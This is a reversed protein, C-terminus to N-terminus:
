QVILKKILTGQASTLKYMYIGKPVKHGAQNTVRWVKRHYGQKKFENVLTNVLQGSSNYITLSVQGDAPVRYSITTEENVVPNPENQYLELKIEGRAAQQSAKSKGRVNRTIVRTTSNNVILTIDVTETGLLTAGQLIKAKVKGTYTGKALTAKTTFTMPHEHGSPLIYYGGAQFAQNTVTLWDPMKLEYQVESANLSKLTLGFSTSKGVAQTATHNQKHWSINNADVRFTWSRGQALNGFEDSITGEHITATLLAGEMLEMPYTDVPQIFVQTQDASTNVVLPIDQIVTEINLPAANAKGTVFSIGTASTGHTKATFDRIAEPALANDDLVYYAQLGAETGILRKNHNTRITEESLANNWIRVEDIGGNFSQGNNLKGITLPQNNVAFNGIGTSASKNLIGNLYISLSNVSTQKSYVVAVHTWVDTTLAQTSVVGNQGAYIKNGQTFGIQVNGGKEIIPTFVTNSHVKSPKVWFEVTYSDTLDLAPQDSVTIQDSAQDFWASKPQYEDGGLIGRLSINLPNVGDLNLRKNFTATAIVNPTISGNLPTVSTIVPRQRQINGAVWGTPNIMQWGELANGCLPVLRVRYAQNAGIAKTDLTYNYFGQADKNGLDAVRVDKSFQIDDSNELAFEMRVKSFTSHPTVAKFRFKLAEKSGSNVVWNKAPAAMDIQGVCPAHFKATLRKVDRLRVYESGDSNYIVAAKDVGKQYEYKPSGDPNNGVKVKEGAYKNLVSEDCGSYLTLPINVFETPATSGERKVYVKLTKSAGPELTYTRPIALNGLGEVRISAGSPLKSTPVVLKYTKAKGQNQGENNKNADRITVEFVADANLNAWGTSNTVALEVGERAITHQEVPCSSQGAKAVIVPTPFNPDQRFRVSFHDGADNDSLAITFSETSSTGGGSNRDIDHSTSLTIDLNFNASFATVDTKIYKTLDLSHSHSVEKSSSKDVGITRKWTSSASFAQDGLPLSNAGSKNSMTFATNNDGNIVAQRTALTQALVKNWAEIDQLHNKIADVIKRDDSSLTERNKQEGQKDNLQGRLISVKDRLKPIENHEIAYRTFVFEAGKSTSGTVEEQITTASCGSVSLTKGPAFYVIDSTGIFVDSQAGPLNVTGASTSISKDFTVSYSSTYKGGINNTTGIQGGATVEGKSSEYMVVSGGGIGVWAGIYASHKSGSTIKSSAKISHNHAISTSANVSSGLAWATSGGDSPPDYLVQQVNPFTLSFNQNEDQVTGTVWALLQLSANRETLQIDLIQTYDDNKSFNPNNTWVLVTDTGSECTFPNNATSGVINTGLQGHSKQLDGAVYYKTNNAYCKNGDYEEYFELKVQYQTQQDLIYKNKSTCYNASSNKDFAYWEPQKQANKGLVKVITAEVQLPSHYDFNVTAWGQTIDVGFQTKVINRNAQNTLTVKYIGPLLGDVSFVTGKANLIDRAKPTTSQTFTKSFKPSPADTREVTIDWLGLSNNCPIIMNGTIGYRTNNHFVVGSTPETINWTQLGNPQAYKGQAQYDYKYKRKYPSVLTADYVPMTADDNPDNLLNLAKNQGQKANSVARLSEDNESFSYSATLNNEDNALYDGVKLQNLAVKDFTVKRQEILHLNAKLFESRNSGEARAGLYVLGNFDVADVVGTNAFNNQDAYLLITRNSQNYAFAFFQWENSSAFAVDKLLMNDKYLALRTNNRLVLRLEGVQLITQLAPAIGTFTGRKIWGSWTVGTTPATFTGESKAYDNEGDFRLSQNGFSRDKLSNTVRLNQFGIPLSLNYQGFNDTEVREGNGGVIPRYDVENPNRNSAFEFTQGATVPYDTGAVHYYVDGSINFQSEDTFNVDNKTYDNPNTSSQLIRSLSTPAFTHNTKVPVVSLTVSANGYNIGEMIYNGSLDTYVGYKLNKPAVRLLDQTTKAVYHGKTTAAQNYTERAVQMDFRYYLLLRAEKGGIMYQWYRRAQEDLRTKLEQDNEQRNSGNPLQVSIKSADWVRLEDLWYSSQAQANLAFSSVVGLNNYTYKSANEAVKQGDVYVRGGVQTFAVAYHHWQADGVTNNYRIYETGNGNTVRLTNNPLMQVEVNGLKFVKNTGTTNGKYWFELMFDKAIGANRFVDANKVALPARASNVQLAKGPLTNSRGFTLAVHPTGVKSSSQVTGSIKGNHFIFGYDIGVSSVSGQAQVKYQTVKGPLIDNRVEFEVPDGVKRSGAQMTGIQVNSVGKTIVYSNAGNVHNWHLTVKHDHVGKSAVLHITQNKLVPHEIDNRVEMLTHTKYRSIGKAKITSSPLLNGWELKKVTGLVSVKENNAKDYAGLLVKLGQAKLSNLTNADNTNFSRLWSEAVQGDTRRKSWARIEAIEQLFRWDRMKYFLLNRKAVTGLNISLEARKAGNVYVRLVNSQWTLTIHHWVGKEVSGNITESLDIDQVKGQCNVRLKNDAYMQISLAQANDLMDKLEWNNRSFTSRIWFELSAESPNDQNLLAQLDIGTDFYTAYDKQTMRLIGHNQAHLSFHSLMLLMMLWAGRMCQKILINM